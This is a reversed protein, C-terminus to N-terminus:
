VPGTVRNWHTDLILAAFSILEIISFSAPLALPMPGFLRVFGTASFQPYRRYLYFSMPLMDVNELGLHTYFLSIVNQTTKLLLAIPNLVHLRAEM